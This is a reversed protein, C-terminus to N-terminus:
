NRRTHSHTQTYTLTPPTLGRRRTKQYTVFVECWRQIGNPHPCLERGAYSTVGFSEMWVSESFKTINGRNERLGESPIVSKAKFTNRTLSGYTLVKRANMQQEGSKKTINAQTIDESRWVTVINKGFAQHLINRPVWANSVSTERLMKRRDMLTQM